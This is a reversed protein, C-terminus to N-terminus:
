KKGGKKCTKGLLSLKLQIWFIFIKTVSHRQHGAGQGDGTIHLSVWCVAVLDHTVAPLNKKKKRNETPQCFFIDQVHVHSRLLVPM